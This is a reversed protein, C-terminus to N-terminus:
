ACTGATRPRRRRVRHKEIAAFIDETETSSLLVQTCGRLCNGLVTVIGSLHVPPMWDLTVPRVVRANAVPLTATWRCRWGCVCRTLRACQCGIVERFQVSASRISLHIRQIYRMLVPEIACVTKDREHGSDSSCCNRVCGMEWFLRKTATHQGPYESTPWFISGLVSSKSKATFPRRGCPPATM